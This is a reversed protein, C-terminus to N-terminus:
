IFKNINEWTLGTFIYIQDESLRNKGVTDFLTLNCENVFCNIVNKFDDGSIFASNSFVKILNIDDHYLRNKILHNQCCRNGEPIYIKRKIYVQVRAEQPVVTLNSNKYCICCYKHTSVTRQVPVAIYEVESENPNTKYQISVSPDTQSSQSVQNEDNLSLDSSNQTLNEIQDNDLNDIKRRKYATVRCKGCILDGMNLLNQTVASFLTM